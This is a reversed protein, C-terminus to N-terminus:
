AHWSPNVEDFEHASSELKGFPDLLTRGHGDVDLIWLAVHAPGPPFGPLGAPGPKYGHVVLKTGDPSWSPHEANRAVRRAAGGSAAIVWTEMYGNNANSFFDRVFAIRRGNPSWATVLPQGKEPSTFVRRAGTGDANLVELYFHTPSGSSPDVDATAIAIRDGVPDWSPFSTFPSFTAIEKEGGGAASAVYLHGCSCSADYPGTYALRRGDPSWTVASVNAAVLHLASGDARMVFVSQPGGNRTQRVFAIRSGDPSWAPFDDQWVAHTLRRLGTGDAHVVYIGVGPHTRTGASELVAFAIRGQLGTASGTGSSTPTLVAAALVGACFAFRRRSHM